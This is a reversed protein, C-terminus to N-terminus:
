QVFRKELEKRIKEPDPNIALLKGKEDILFMGGGGSDVGYKQWINNERDLEVLNKWPWKEKKLFNELRNTNKFEGAVGIVTFGKDKFEEFIPIVERSKKICPGCWTAWLDLLAVKGKIENSLNVSEGNLDPANFDIFKNGIKVKKMALLLNKALENYPHNENKRSLVEYQKTAQDLNVMDQFYILNNLFFFYSVISPNEFIYTNKLEIEDQFNLKPNQNYISDKYNKFEKFEKNLEGGEIVNQDFKEEEYVELAVDYNDLFLPMIRGVGNEKASGLLLNYARPYDLHYEYKFKGNKVPIEIISDFRMDQNVGLLLISNIEPSHVNGTVYNTRDEIKCSTIAITAIILLGIIKLNNMAQIFNQV